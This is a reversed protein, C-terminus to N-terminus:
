LRMSRMLLLTSLSGSLLLLRCRCPWVVECSGSTDATKAASSCSFFNEFRDDHGSLGVVQTDAAVVGGAPQSPLGQHVPVSWGTSRSHGRSKSISPVMTWDSSSHRVMAASSFASYAGCGWKM